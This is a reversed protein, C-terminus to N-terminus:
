AVKAGTADVYHWRPRGYRDTSDLSLRGYRNPRGDPHSVVIWRASTGAMAWAQGTLGDGLDYSGMPTRRRGGGVPSVRRAPTTKALRLKRGRSASRGVHIALQGTM